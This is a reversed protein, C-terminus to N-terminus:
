IGRVCGSLCHTAHTLLPRRRFLGCTGWASSVNGERETRRGTMFNGHGIYFSKEEGGERERERPPTPPPMYFSIARHLPFSNGPKLAGNRKKGAATRTRADDNTFTQYEMKGEKNRFFSLVSTTTTTTRAERDSSGYQFRGDDKRSLPAASAPRRDLDFIPPAPSRLSLYYFIASEAPTDM